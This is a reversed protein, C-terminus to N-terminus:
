KGNRAFTAVADVEGDDPAPGDSSTRVEIAGNECLKTLTAEVKHTPVTKRKWILSDGRGIVLYAIETTSIPTKM